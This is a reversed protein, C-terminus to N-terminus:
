VVKGGFLEIAESILGDRNETEEKEVEANDLISCEISIKKGTFTKILEEIEGRYEMIKGIHFAHSKKFGIQIVGERVEFPKAELLIAHLFIKKKKVQKMLEPWFSSIDPASNELKQEIRHVEEDAFDDRKVMRLLAIEWLTRSISPDQLQVKLDLLIKLFIMVEKLSTGDSFKKIKELFDSGWTEEVWSSKGIKVLFITRICELFDKVLQESDVGSYILEKFIELAAPTNKFIINQALEYIIKQSTVGMVKAANEYSIGEDSYNAAQELFVLADRLSGDSGQAMLELANEDIKIKEKKAINRLSVVIEKATIRHFDHRQCRSVITPLLKQPHTTALIFVTHAPPEELTKLLANFASDSLKHVEDIIYVKYKGQTPAFAVRQIIFERVKEVQTNSAADIEIVDMAIGESIKQCMECENCPGLGKGEFCNLSKAFIRATSTKGTGRPGSFLYASSIRMSSISNELIKTIHEQGVVESFSRPRYKRYLSRWAM